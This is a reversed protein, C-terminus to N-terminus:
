NSAGAIADRYVERMQAVVTETSYHALVHERSAEGLRARLEPSQALRELCRTLATVDGPEVWLGHLDPQMMDPVGGVPTAIVAVGYAMAELISVPMGEKYSPLAFIDATSFEREKDTGSVWGIFDVDDRVGLRLAEDLFREVEGNGGVVLRWGRTQKRFDVWARLLDFSGKADCIMGLFLVRGGAESEAPLQTKAVITPIRVPNGVIRVRSRPAFNRVWVAWRESLVVVVSSAELTQRICWRLVPGGFGHAAYADFGGSHLHFITSTGFRRAIWLLLAKRWFSAKSSVHAHVIAVQGSMLLRLAVFFANLFQAMKRLRGGDVHTAVYRVRAWDFLGGDRFAAVVAAIGGRMEPSTGLMLAIRNSAIVSGDTVESQTRGDHDAEDVVGSGPTNM